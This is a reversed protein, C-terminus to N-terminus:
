QGEAERPRVEYLGEEVKMQALRVAGIRWAHSGWIKLGVRLDGTEYIVLMGVTCRSKLEGFIEELSFQSLSPKEDAM